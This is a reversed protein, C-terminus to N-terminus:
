FLHFFQLKFKDLLNILFNRKFIIIPIIQSLYIIQNNIVFYKNKPFFDLFYHSANEDFNFKM